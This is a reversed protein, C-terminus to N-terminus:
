KAMGGKVLIEYLLKATQARTVTQHPAFTGDDMGNIIGKASLTSVAERAYDDIRADDTFTTKRSSAEFGSARLLILAIDQRKLGQGVGFKGDGLGVMLGETAVKDVFEAYWSSNNVDTFELGSTKSLGFSLSLMKAFEERTVKDEPAFESVSKGSIIGNSYLYDVAEKAWAYGSMDNFPAEKKNSIESSDTNQLAPGTAVFSSGGGGGGGSSPKKDLSPKGNKLYNEIEETLEELTDFEINNIYKCVDSTDKTRNFRTLDYNKM